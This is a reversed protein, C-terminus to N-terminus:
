LLLLNLFANFEKGSVYRPENLVDWGAHLFFMLSNFLSM